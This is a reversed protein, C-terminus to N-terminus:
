LNFMDEVEEKLFTFSINADETENFLEILRLIFEHEYFLEKIYEHNMKIGLNNLLNHIKTEVNRDGSALALLQAEGGALPIYHNLEKLRRGIDSTYGIKYVSNLKRFNVIYIM